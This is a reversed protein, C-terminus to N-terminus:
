IGGREIQKSIGVFTELVKGPKPLPNSFMTKELSCMLRFAPDSVYKKRWQKKLSKQNYRRQKELYFDLADQAEDFAAQSIELKEELNKIKNALKSM